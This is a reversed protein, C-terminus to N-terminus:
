ERKLSRVVKIMIEKEGDDLSDWIDMMENQMDTLNPRAGDEAFFQAITIDFADCIKELTPLTPISVKSLINGVATQSMGTLQALRYKSVGREKCLIEIQEAVYDDVRM